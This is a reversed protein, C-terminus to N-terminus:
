LWNNKIFCILEKIDYSKGIPIVKYQTNQAIRSGPTKMDKIYYLTPDNMMEKTAGGTIYFSMGLLSEVTCEIERYDFPYVVRLYLDREAEAKKYSNIYPGLVDIYQINDKNKCFLAFEIGNRVGSSRVEINKNTISTIDIQDISSTSCNRKLFDCELLNNIVWVCACESIIGMLNDILIQGEIRAISTNAGKKNVKTSTEQAELIVKNLFEEDKNKEFSVKVCAFTKREISFKQTNNINIIEFNM